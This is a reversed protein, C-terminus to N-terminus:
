VEEGSFVGAWSVWTLVPLTSGTDHRLGQINGEGHIVNNKTERNQASEM